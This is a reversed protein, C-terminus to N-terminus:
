VEWLTWCNHLYKMRLHSSLCSCDLVTLPDEGCAQCAAPFCLTVRAMSFPELPAWSDWGKYPTKRSVRSRKSTLGLTSFKGPGPVSGSGVSLAWFRGWIVDEPSCQEGFTQLVQRLSTHKLKAWSQHEQWTIGSSSSSLTRGRGARPSTHLSRSARSVQSLPSAKFTTSILPSTKFLKPLILRLSAAQAPFARNSVDTCGEGADGIGERPMLPVEPHSKGVGLFPNRSM